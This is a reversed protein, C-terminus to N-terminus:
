ILTGPPYMEHFYRVTPYGMVEFQRCIPTNEEQACDIAGVKVLSSWQKVESAFEKWHPAFKQCHGCWSSYFEILWANEKNYLKKNFNNVTFIEVNDRLTYLGPFEGDSKNLTAANPARIIIFLIYLVSIIFYNKLKAM